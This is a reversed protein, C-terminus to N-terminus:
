TTPVAHIVSCPSATRTVSTMRLGADALLQRYENETREKGGTTMMALDIQMISQHEPSEDLIEPLVREFLIVHSDPQAAQACRQLIQLAEPDGWDHIIYKLVYCDYGGPVSEFFDGATFRARDAVGSRRLYATAEHELYSLDFVSGSMERYRRLLMALAGGFGGGVDLVRSYRGFDYVQAADEIIRISSEVMAQHMESLGPHQALRDFGERGAPLSRGTKVVSRLQTYLDWMIGSTFLARGSISNVAGRRLVQGRATLEFSSGALPRVIGVTQLGRLVRLISSPDAECADAIEAASRAGRELVDAIGLAVATGVLQTIWFGEILESVSRDTSRDQIAQLKAMPIDTCRQKISLQVIGGAVDSECRQISFSADHM